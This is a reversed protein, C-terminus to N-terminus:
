DLRKKTTKKPESTPKQAIDNLGTKKILITKHDNRQTHPNRHFLGM